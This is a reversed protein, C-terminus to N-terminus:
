PCSIGAFPATLKRGPLYAIPRVDLREQILRKLRRVESPFLRVRMPLNTRQLGQVIVPIGIIYSPRWPPWTQLPFVGPWFTKGGIPLGFYRGVSDHVGEYGATGGFTTLFCVRYTNVGLRDLVVCYRGRPEHKFREEATLTYGRSQLLDSFASAISCKPHYALDGAEFSGPIRHSFYKKNARQNHHWTELHICEWYPDTRMFVQRCVRQIEYIVM